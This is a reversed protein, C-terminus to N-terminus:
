KVMVTPSVIGPLLFDGRCYIYHLTVGVVLFCFLDVLRNVKKLTSTLPTSGRVEQM